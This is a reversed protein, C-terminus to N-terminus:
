PRSTVRQSQKGHRHGPIRCTELYREVQRETRDVAKAIRPLTMGEEHMRMALAKNEEAIVKKAHVAAGTGPVLLRLRDVEATLRRISTWQGEILRTLQQEDRFAANADDDPWESILQRRRRRLRQARSIEPDTV